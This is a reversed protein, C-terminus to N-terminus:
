KEFGGEAKRAAEMDRDIARSGATTHWIATVADARAVCEMGTIDVFQLIQLIDDIIQARLTTATPTDVHFAVGDIRVVWFDDRGTM